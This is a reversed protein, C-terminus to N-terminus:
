ALAFDALASRPVEEAPLLVARDRGGRPSFRGQLVLRDRATPRARRQLGRSDSFVVTGTLGTATATCGPGFAREVDEDTARGVRALRRRRHSTRVYSLPGVGEDVGTLHLHVELAPGDAARAWGREPVPAGALTLVGNMDWIRVERRCHASAVGSIQPHRLFRAYPDEPDVPPRSGLLDVDRPTARRQEPEGCLRRRRRVIDASQDAILDDTRSLVEGLLEDREGGSGLLTALDTWAIGDRHLDAVVRRAEATLHARRRLGRPLRV